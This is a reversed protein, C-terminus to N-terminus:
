MGNALVIMANIVTLVINVIIANMMSRNNLRINLGNCVLLLAPFILVFVSKSIETKGSSNLPIQNPMKGYFVINIVVTVGFCIAGLIMIKKISEKSLM